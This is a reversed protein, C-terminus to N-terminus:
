PMEGAASEGMIERLRNLMRYKAVYIANATIGLMESVDRVTWGRRAYLDFAQFTDVDAERRLRELAQNLNELRWEMDYAEDLQRSEAEAAARGLAEAHKSATARRQRQRRVLNMLVGRLWDRLRGKDRDFAGDPYREVCTAITDAVLELAEADSAGVRKAFRLLMEQYRRLFRKWAQDNGRDCLADLLSTHTLSESNM